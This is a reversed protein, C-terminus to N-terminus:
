SFVLATLSSLACTNDLGGFIHLKISHCPLYLEAVESEKVNHIRIPSLSNTSSIYILLNDIFSISRQIKYSTNIFIVILQDCQLLDMQKHFHKITIKTVFCFFDVFAECEYVHNSYSNELEYM